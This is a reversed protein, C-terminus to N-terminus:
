HNPSLGLVQRKNNTVNELALVGSYICKIGAEPVRGCAQPTSLTISRSVAKCSPYGREADLLHQSFEKFM